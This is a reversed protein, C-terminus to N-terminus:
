AAVLVRPARQRARFDEIIAAWAEPWRHLNRELSHHEAIRRRQAKRLRRRLEADDVLRSLADAWQDPTDAILGDEGDIVYPGYLTSSAVVCAGACTYEWVKIPTKSTNFLKPAVSACGIDVNVLARIYQDIPLWPLTVRQWDPVAAALVPAIHGQVVFRVEPHRRAVVAWAEAIPALDDAYRAGGAWGITLKGQLAPVRGIGRLARRVYRTDIANPVVAVPRDTYQRVVTALRRTSVTVGDAMRLVRIRDLRDQRLRELGKHRETEHNAYQRQEIGETYVDDDVELIVALGAAHLARFFRDGAAHDSWSLRPLIVADCRSAVLAPFEPAATEPDDKLKWFAQYGQRQLETFPWYTRWLTPGTEDGVLAIVSPAENPRM